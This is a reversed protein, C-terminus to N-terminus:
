LFCFNKRRGRVRVILAKPFFAFLHTGCSKSVNNNNPVKCSFKIQCVNTYTGRPFPPSNIIKYLEIKKKELCM